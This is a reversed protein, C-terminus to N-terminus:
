QTVLRNAILGGAAPLLPRTLRKVTGAIKGPPKPAKVSVPPAEPTLLRNALEDLLKENRNKLVLKGAGVAPGVLPHHTIAGLGIALPVNMQDAIAGTALHQATHSNAPAGLLRNNERLLDSHIAQLQDLTDQTIAKAANDGPKARMEAIRDLARSVRGLTMKGTMDTLKLSQLFKTAAVPEATTKATKLYDGYGPAAKEIEADLADRVGTLHRAATDGADTGKTNLKDIADSLSQRMGFLQKPNTETTPARGAEEKVAAEAADGLPGGGKYAFQGFNRKVASLVAQPTVQKDPGASRLAAEVTKLNKYQLRTDRLESLMAKGEPTAGVSRELADDLAERIQNAADRITPDGSNQLSTLPAGKKTLAQYSAGSLASGGEGERVTSAIDGLQKFLPPMSSEPVVQGTEHIIHVIDSVAKDDWNVKTKDAIEEFKAGLRSRAESLVEPTLAPADAGFTKAVSRNFDAKQTPSTEPPPTVVKDRLTQLPRAVEDMHAEPASLAADIADVVPKPNAVGAQKFAATEAKAVADKRSAVLDAVTQEDGRLSDLVNGRAAANTLDHEAFPTPRTLRVTRELTAIGPNGTAEALSPTSGPIIETADPHMNGGEGFTGVIRNIIKGRGGETMPEALSRATSGLWRGAGRVAPATPGLLAGGVAGSAVQEGLPEENASSTLAAASGGATAGATSLSAGRTLLRPLGKAMAAGGRGAVFEAAAPAGARALGPVVAAEGGALLPAAGVLQMTFRAAGSKLDGGYKAGYVMQNALLANKVDSDDSDPALHSISAAVDGLGQLGGAFASSEKTGGPARNVKGNAIYYAGAPVDKETLGPQIGFPNKESGKPADKDILGGKVLQLYAASDAKSAHAEMDTFKVPGADDEPAKVKASYGLQGWLDDSPADNKGGFFLTDGVSKGSGDDFPAKVPRGDSKALEAQAKPAYFLTAGGSPDAVSGQIIPLVDAATAKYEDSQPDIAAIEKQKSTWPEFANPETLAGLLDGKRAKARNAMVGAVWKRATPDKEELMTLRVALDNPDYQPAPSPAKYGLDGWLDDAM